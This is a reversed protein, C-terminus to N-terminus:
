NPHRKNGGTYTTSTIFVTGRTQLHTQGETLGRMASGNSMPDRFKTCHNVKIIAQVIEITLTFTVLDFYM